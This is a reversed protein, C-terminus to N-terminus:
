PHRTDPVLWDRFSAEVRPIRLHNWPEKHVREYMQLFTIIQWSKGDSCQASRGQTTSTRSPGDGSGLSVYRSWTDHIGPKAAKLGVKQHCFCTYHMYIMECCKLFPGTAAPYHNNIYICHKITHYTCIDRQIHLFFTSNMMWYYDILMQLVCSRSLADSPFSFVFESRCAGAEACAPRPPRPALPAVGGFSRSTQHTLHIPQLFFYPCTPLILSIQHFRSM